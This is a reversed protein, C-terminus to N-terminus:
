HVYRICYWCIVREDPMLRDCIKCRNRRRVRITPDVTFGTGEPRNGGQQLTGARHRHSFDLVRLVLVVEGGGSM